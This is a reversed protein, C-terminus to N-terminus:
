LQVGSGGSTNGVTTVYTANVLQNGIQLFPAGNQMVVSSVTGTPGASGDPNTTVVDKGILSASQTFENFANGSTMTQNLSTMEQLSSFQALQALMASQDMPATPDQNQLQTVLMQLFEDQTVNTGNGASQTSSASPTPNSRPAAAIAAQFISNLGM